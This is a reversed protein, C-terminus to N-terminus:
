YPVDLSRGGGERNEGNGAAHDRVFRSGIVRVYPCAIHSQVGRKHWTFNPVVANSKQFM